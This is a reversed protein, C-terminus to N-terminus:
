IKNFNLKRLFDSFMSFLMKNSESNETKKETKKTKLSCNERKLFM